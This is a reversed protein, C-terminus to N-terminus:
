KDEREMAAECRPCQNLLRNTEFGCHSCEYLPMTWARIATKRMKIKKYTEANRREGDLQLWNPEDPYTDILQSELKRIVPDDEYIDPVYPHKAIYEDITM